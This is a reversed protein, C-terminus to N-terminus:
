INQVLVDSSIMVRTDKDVLGGNDKVRKLSTAGRRADFVFDHEKQKKLYFFGHM